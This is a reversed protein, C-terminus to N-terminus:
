NSFKEDKYKRWIDSYECNKYEELWPGGETFHLANPKDDKTEQYWSVLWNWSKNIEGIEDDHLWSFRHLAEGSSNNIVDTTLYQNKEHECNWLILSSWNKRPYQYQIKNDKKIIPSPNYDHKVVMVAYKKDIKDFLQRVDNLWLFDSDCFLAWGKYQMIRPILFRTFTFETSSLPDHPRWYLNQIRLDNQKLPIIELSTTSNKKLSYECVKYSLEERQDYGIFIKM